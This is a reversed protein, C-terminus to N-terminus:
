SIAAIADTLKGRFADPVPIYGEGELQGQVEESVAINLFSRVAAATEPDEYTSCVVEYTPMLIPYAGAAEPVYFSSTDIVLDHSGEEKLKASDITTGATEADLAVGEADAPTIVNVMSLDQSKAYSWETYTVTGSTQAVAGSVGENGKAGEGIGGSFIKGAGQSWAGDSAADLYKQFNDTTGSEDSRFIVTIDQDPLEVGENSAAIAPDNWKTIEGNFIKAITEGPLALEVGDLNYAVAIPGFVAPLNWAPGACREEAQTYEEDKLASDSGGFDTQGGIFEKVGAGSGNSNYDLTQGDCSVSYSNAFITMANNQASSGSANLASQGECAVGDVQQASNATSANNDSCAALGVTTLAALGALAGIRKLDM